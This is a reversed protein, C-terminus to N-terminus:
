LDICVRLWVVFLCIMFSFIFILLLHLDIYHILISFIYSMLYLIILLVCIQIFFYMLRLYVNEDHPSQNRENNDNILIITEQRPPTRMISEYTENNKVNINLRTKQRCIFCIKPNKRQNIWNKECSICLASDICNICFSYYQIFEFCICCQINYFM